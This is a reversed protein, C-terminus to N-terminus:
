IGFLVIVTNVQYLFALVRFLILFYVTALVRKESVGKLYRKLM